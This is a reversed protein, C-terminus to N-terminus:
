YSYRWWKPLPEGAPMGRIEVLRKSPPRAGTSIVLGIDNLISRASAFPGHGFGFLEAGVATVDITDVGDVLVPGVEPVDGARSVNGAVRKSAALARDASSAYLTMGSSAARVKNAISKYHDKDLDPAAMLIEAIGLPDDTHHHGALAELVVLNGMSHALIDIRNAGGLRINQLTEIFAGRAGLASDRVYIYDLLAGRSPWSFLVPVGRYQLDWVVQGARYIADRFTNNFGHVFVLANKPEYSSVLARWDEITRVDVSDIVFHGEPDLPQEYFTVSFLSLKFPLEVKGIRHSKPVRVSATDYSVNDGREGSYYSNDYSPRRNTAYLLDVTQNREGRVASHRAELDSKLTEELREAMEALTDTRAQSASLDDSADKDEAAWVRRAAVRSEEPLYEEESFDGARASASNRLLTSWHHPWRTNARGFSYNAVFAEILDMGVYGAAAIGLLVIQYHPEIPMFSHVGVEIAAIMGVVFGGFLSLFFRSTSFLEAAPVSIRQAEKSLKRLGGIARVTQGLLGVLGGVLLGCLLALSDPM